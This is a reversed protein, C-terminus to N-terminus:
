PRRIRRAAVLSEFAARVEGIQQRVGIEIERFTGSATPMMRESHAACACREALAKLREALREWERARAEDTERADRERTV